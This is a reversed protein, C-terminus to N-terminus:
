EGEFIEEAQEHIDVAVDGEDSALVVQLSVKVDLIVFSGEPVKLVAV